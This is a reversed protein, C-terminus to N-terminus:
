RRFTTMDMTCLGVGDPTHSQAICRGETAPCTDDVVSCLRVCRRAAAIGGCFFGAQCDEQAECGDGAGGAGAVRCETMRSGDILYCGERPECVEGPRLVNCSRIALCRGWRTETGDVLVGSGGCSSGVACAAGDTPCCIRGCLGTGGAEDLFCALGDGCAQVDACPMGVTLTGPTTAECTPSTSWLACPGAICSSAAARPDCARRDCLPAGADIAGADSAPGGADSAAAGADLFGGGDGVTADRMLSGDLGIPESDCGFGGLLLALGLAQLLSIM